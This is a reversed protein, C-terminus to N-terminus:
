CDFVLIPMVGDCGGIDFDVCCGRLLLVRRDLAYIRLADTMVFGGSGVDGKIAFRSGDPGSM